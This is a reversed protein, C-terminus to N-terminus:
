DWPIEHARAQAGPEDLSALFDRKQGAVYQDITTRLGEAAPPLDPLKLEMTYLGKLGSETDKHAAAQAPAPTEGGNAQDAQRCAALSATAFVLSLIHRVPM